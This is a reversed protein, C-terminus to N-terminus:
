SNLIMYAIAEDRTLSNEVLISNIKHLECKTILSFSATRTYTNVLVWHRAPFDCMDSSCKDINM